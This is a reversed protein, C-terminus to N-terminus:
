HNLIARIQALQKAAKEAGEAYAITIMQQVLSISIYPVNFHRSEKYLVTSDCLKWTAHEEESLELVVEAGRLVVRTM